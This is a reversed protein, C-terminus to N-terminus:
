PLSFQGSLVTSGWGPLIVLTRWLVVPDPSGPWEILHLYETGDAQRLRLVTDLSTRSSPLELTEVGLVEADTTHLLSLLDAPQLRTVRKLPIDTKM